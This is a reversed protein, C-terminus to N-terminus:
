INQNKIHVGLNSKNMISIIFECTHSNTALVSDRINNKIYEKVSIICIGSLRDSGNTHLIFANSSDLHHTDLWYQLDSDQCAFLLPYAGFIRSNVTAGRDDEITALHYSRSLRHVFERAHPRVRFKMTYDNVFGLASLHLIAVPRVCDSSPMFGTDVDTPIQMKVHYLSSSEVELRLRDGPSINKPVFRGDHLTTKTIDDANNPDTIVFCFHDSKESLFSSNFINYKHAYPHCTSPGEIGFVDIARTFVSEPEAPAESQRVMQMLKAVMCFRQDPDNNRSVSGM